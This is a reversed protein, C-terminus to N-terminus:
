KIQEIENDSKGFLYWYNEIDKTIFIGYKEIM